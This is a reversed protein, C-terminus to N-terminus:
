EAGIQIHFSLGTESNIKEGTINVDDQKECHNPEKVKVGRGGAGMHFCAVLVGPDGWQGGWCPVGLCFWLGRNPLEVRPTEM